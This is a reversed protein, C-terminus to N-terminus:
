SRRCRARRDEDVGQFAKDTVGQAHARWFARDWEQMLTIGKLQLTVDSTQLGEYYSRQGVMFKTRFYHRMEPHLWDLFEDGVADGAALGRELHELVSRTHQPSDPFTSKGPPPKTLGSAKHFAEFAVSLRDRDAQFRSPLGGAACAPPVGFLSVLMGVLSLVFLTPISWKM